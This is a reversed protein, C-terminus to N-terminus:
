EEGSNDNPRCPIRAVHAFTGEDDLRSEVWNVTLPITTSNGNSVSEGAIVSVVPPRLLIEGDLDWGASSSPSRWHAQLTAAIPDGNPCGSLSEDALAIWLREEFDLAIASGLSRNLSSHLNQLSNLYLAAMGAMGISLVLLAVLIELLTLGCQDRGLFVTCPRKRVM